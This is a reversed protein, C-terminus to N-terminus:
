APYTMRSRVTPDLWGRQVMTDLLRNWDAQPETQEPALRAALVAAQELTLEGPKKGFYTQAAAVLGRADRGYYAANLYFGLIERHSYRDELKAAMVRVRWTSGEGDVTDSAAMAYRRTILSATFPNGDAGSYFDPDVAAVFTSAVELPIDDPRVVPYPHRMEDPAPVSDYFYTGAAVAFVALLASTALIGAIWRARRSRRPPTAPPPQEVDVLTM